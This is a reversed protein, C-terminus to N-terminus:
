FVRLSVPIVEKEIKEALIQVHVQKLKEFSFKERQKVFSENFCKKLSWAFVIGSRIEKGYKPWSQFFIIDMM